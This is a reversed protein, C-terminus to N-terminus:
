QLITPVAEVKVQDARVRGVLQLELHDTAGPDLEGVTASGAALYRRGGRAYAYIQLQYQPIDSLNTVKVLLRSKRLGSRVASVAAGATFLAPPSEDPGVLAFARAGAPVARGSLYVWTLERHAHVAPLHAGFYGVGAVDNVYSRRSGRTYGVSIPLDGITKTGDNRVTVVFASRGHSSVVATTVVKVPGGAKIVRTKEQGVTLRAANLQLRAAKEKTTTCGALLAPTLIM